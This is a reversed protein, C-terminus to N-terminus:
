HPNFNFPYNVTTEMGRSSPPFKVKKLEAIACEAVAPSKLSSRELNLEAKKVNGEPDLVFHIVMDGKLTPLKKQAEDYCARIPERHKKVVQQIVPMTRTEEPGSNANAAVPQEGEASEGPEETDTAMAEGEWAEEALPAESAPTEAVPESPEAAPANPEPAAPTAAPSETRHTCGAITAALIWPGYLKCIGVRMGAM